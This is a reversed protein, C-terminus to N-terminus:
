IQAEQPLARTISFLATATELKVLFFMFLFDSKMEYSGRPQSLGEFDDVGAM